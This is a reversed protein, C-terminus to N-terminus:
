CTAPDSLAPAHSGGLPVGRGAKGTCTKLNEVGSDWAGEPEPQTPGREARLFRARLRRLGTQAWVLRARPTTCPWAAMPGPGLPGWWDTFSPKPQPQSADSCRSVHRQATAQVGSGAYSVPHGYCTAEYCLARMGPPAVVAAGITRSAIPL